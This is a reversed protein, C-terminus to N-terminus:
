AEGGLGLSQESQQQARLLADVFPRLVDVLTCVDVGALDRGLKQELQELQQPRQEFHMRCLDGAIDNATRATDKLLGCATTCGLLAALILTRM